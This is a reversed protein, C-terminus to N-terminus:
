FHGAFRYRSGPHWLSATSAVRERSWTRRLLLLTPEDEAMQLAQRVEADPSRAEITYEVRALPAERVLFENPTLREFDQSLYAEALEPAVWRVELQIPMGDEFHVLRSQALRAGVEIEFREALKADAAVARLTLVEAHHVKGRAVIEDAISRIEVLTSTSKPEAVFTGAGKVRVLVRDDALERVARNVTMRAVGFSRALENESPVQHGELWQGRRIHDLIHDKIQQYAPPSM